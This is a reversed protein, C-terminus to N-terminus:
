YKPILMTNPSCQSILRSISDESLLPSVTEKSGVTIAAAALGCILAKDISNHKMLGYLFGATLSDGAGTVDAVHTPISLYRKSGEANTYCLGEKGLTTIVSRIGAKVLEAAMLEAKSTKM